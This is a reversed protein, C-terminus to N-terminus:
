NSKALAGFAFRYLMERVQKESYESLAWHRLAWINCLFYIFHAALSPDAVSFEGSRKGESIIQEWLAVLRRELDFIKERNERNLSKTERYVLNIYKRNKAIYEVLSDIAHKIKETATGNQRLSLEFDAFLEEMCGNTIMFLVDEKTTIYQYMTSIKLKSAKAIDRITTAAYGKAAVVRCAGMFIQRRRQDAVSNGNEIAKPLTLDDATDEDATLEQPDKAVQITRGNAGRFVIMSRAVIDGAPDNSRTTRRISVQWVPERSAHSVNAADVLLWDGQGAEFYMTTASLVSLSSPACSLVEATGTRAALDSLSSLLAAPVPQVNATDMQLRLKVASSTNSVWEVRLDSLGVLSAKTVVNAKKPVARIEMLCSYAIQGILNPL